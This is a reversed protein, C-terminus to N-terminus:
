ALSIGLRWNRESIGTPFTGGEFLFALVGRMWGAIMRGSIVTTVWVHSSRVAECGFRNLVWGFM